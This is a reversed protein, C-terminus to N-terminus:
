LLVQTGLYSHCAAKQLGLSAPPALGPALLVHKGRHDRCGLLLHNSSQKSRMSYEEDAFQQECSLVENYWEHSCINKFVMVNCTSHQADCICHVLSVGQWKLLM